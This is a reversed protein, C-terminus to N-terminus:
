SVAPSLLRITGADADVEVPLGIPVTFKRRVHGILAGSYVPINLGKFYDDFVEDLTLTGYNGDGPGCNTFAGLVVGALRDFVGANRLTSLM